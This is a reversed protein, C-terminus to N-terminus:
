RSTSTRRTSGLRLPPCAIRPPSTRAPLRFPRHHPPPVCAAHVPIAQSLAQPGLARASRVRFMRYMNTVSSTDFSLPQNFASAFQRTSPSPMRHPPSLHSGPLPLAQPTTAACVLPLAHM